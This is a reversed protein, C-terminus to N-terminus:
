TGFAEVFLNAEQVVKLEKPERLIISEISYDHNIRLFVHCQVEMGFVVERYLRSERMQYIKRIEEESRFKGYLERAKQERRLERELRSKLLFEESDSSDEPGMYIRLDVLSSLPCYSYASNALPHLGELFVVQHPKVRRVRSSRQHRLHDYIPVVMERGLKLIRVTYWLNIYDYSEPFGNWDRPDIGMLDTM